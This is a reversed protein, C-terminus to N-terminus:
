NKCFRLVLQSWLALAPRPTQKISFDIEALHHQLEIVENLKWHRSYRNFKDILFSGLKVDRTGAERDKLVLALMRTNWSILGLLPLAEEPVDAFSQVFSFAFNRQKTFFAEIFNESSGQSLSGALTLLRDDTSVCQKLKELEREILDLSWPDLARLFIVEQENLVLEHRKALYHVWSERDGEAIAECPIVAAKEVLKKSFKKRQDLDKALLVTVNTSNFLPELQDLDKILHAQKVLTFRLGGMMSMSQASDLVQAATVESGELQTECFPNIEESKFLTKRIRKVLERAKMPEEGYIWYVPWTKGAELEKQIIKPEFKPM